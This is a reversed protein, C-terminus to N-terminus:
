QNLASSSTDVSVAYVSKTKTSVKLLGNQIKKKNLEVHEWTKYVLIQALFGGWVKKTPRPKAGGPKLNHTEAIM